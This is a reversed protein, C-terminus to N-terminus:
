EEGMDIHGNLHSGLSLIHRESDVSTPHCSSCDADENGDPDTLHHCAGCQAAAGSTDYFGPEKHDGGPLTAGHCYVNSCVHTEADYGPNAGDHVALHSFRVEARDRPTFM